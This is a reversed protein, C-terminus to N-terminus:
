CWKIKIRTGRINPNRPVWHIFRVESQKPENVGKNGYKPPIEALPGCINGCVQNELNVQHGLSM